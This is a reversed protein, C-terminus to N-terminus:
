WGRPAAGGRLRCLFSRLASMLAMADQALWRAVIAGDVASAACLVTTDLCSRIHDLESEVSPGLHVLTAMARAGAGVAARQFLTSVPGVLRLAEAFVLEGGRRLRWNDRIDVDELREGYAARGLTLPELLTVRAAPDADLHMRRRYHCGDYLLTQQPLWELTAGASVSLHCDVRTVRGEARYVREAAATSLALHAGTGVRISYNITDGGVLGGSPNVLYVECMGGSGTIRARFGGREALRRLVSGHATREAELTIGGVFPRISYARSGRGPNSLVTV